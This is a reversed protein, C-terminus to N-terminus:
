HHIHTHFHPGSASGGVCVCVDRRDFSVWRKQTSTWVDASNRHRHLDKTSTLHHQQCNNHKRTYYRNLGDTLQTSFPCSPPLQVPSPPRKLPNDGTLLELWLSRVVNDDRKLRLSLRAVKTEKTNWQQLTQSLMVEPGGRLLYPDRKLYYSWDFFVEFCRASWWAEAKPCDYVNANSRPPLTRGRQWWKTSKGM